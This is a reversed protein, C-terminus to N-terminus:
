MNLDRNIRLDRVKIDLEIRNDITLIGQTEDLINRIVSNRLKDFDISFNNVLEAYKKM